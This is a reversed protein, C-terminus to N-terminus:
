AAETASTGQKAPTEHDSPASRDGPPPASAADLAERMAREKAITEILEHDPDSDAVIGAGAYIFAERGAILASRIAVGFSGDGNADLWGVGGGYLGRPQAENELIFARAAAKPSGCLAPTPHLRAALDLANPAAVAGGNQASPEALTGVIPTALHHVHPLSRVSPSEPMSIAECAPALAERIASVVFAHEARDKESALLASRAAEDSVGPRRPLSGALAETFVQRGRVLVLREPTAGVFRAGGEAFLFRACAPHREDLFTLAREADIEAGREFRRVRCLVVKGFAGGRIERVGRAVLDRYAREAPDSSLVLASSVPVNLVPESTVPVHSDPLSDGTLASITVGPYNSKAVAVSSIPAGEPPAKDLHTEAPGIERRLFDLTRCIAEIEREPVFAVLFARGRKRAYAM